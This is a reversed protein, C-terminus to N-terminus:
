DVLSETGQMHFLSAPVRIRKRKLVTRIAEYTRPPFYGRHNWVDVTARTVDLGTLKLFNVPGGLADIIEDTTRLTKPKIPMSQGL